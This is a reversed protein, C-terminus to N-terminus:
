SKPKGFPWQVLQSAWLPACILVPQFALRPIHYGLGWGGSERSLDIIFHNFNAPWVCLAYAALGVGAAQRLRKGFPQLLAFAGAIEAIGTWYVVAEPYPVWGPTIALFPAPDLIHARGAVLYLVALLVIIIARALSRGTM